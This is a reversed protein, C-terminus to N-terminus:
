PDGIVFALLGSRLPREKRTTKEETGNPSALRHAPVAGGCRQPSRADYGEPALGPVLIARRRRSHRRM